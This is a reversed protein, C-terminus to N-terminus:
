KLQTIHAKSHQFRTPHLIHPMKYWYIGFFLKQYKQVYNKSKQCHSVFWLECYKKFSVKLTIKLCYTYSKKKHMEPGKPNTLTKKIPPAQWFLAGLNALYWSATRVLGKRSWPWNWRLLGCKENSNLLHMVFNVCPQTM